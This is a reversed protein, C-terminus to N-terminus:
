PPGHWGPPRARPDGRLTEVFRQKGCAPCKRLVLPGIHPLFATREAEFVAGCSPCQAYSRASAGPPFADPTPFLPPPVETSKLPTASPLAATREGWKPWVDRTVAYAVALSLVALAFVIAEFEVLTISPAFPVLFDVFGMPLAVMLYRAKKSAAAVVVLVGWSLHILISSVRELSGLAVLQLVQGVSGSPLGSGGSLIVILLSPLALLGLLVGNEWFALAAGYATAQEVRMRNEAIAQRAFVYALGVELVVTQLGYYTGAAVTNSPVPVALQFAVKGAIALFYAALSYYLVWSTLLQRRQCAWLLLATVALIVLPQLLYLLDLEDVAV